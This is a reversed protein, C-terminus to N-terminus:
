WIYNNVSQSAPSSISFSKFRETQICFNSMLGSFLTTVSCVKNGAILKSTRSVHYWQKLEDTLVSFEEEPNWLPTKDKINAPIWFSDGTNM